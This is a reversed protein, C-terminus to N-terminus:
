FIRVAGAVQMIMQHCSAEMVSSNIFINEPSIQHYLLYFKQLDAQSFCGHLQGNYPHEITCIHVRADKRIKNLFIQDIRSWEISWWSWFEKTQPIMELGYADTQLVEQLYSYAANFMLENLAQRSMGTITLVKAQNLKARLRIKDAHNM